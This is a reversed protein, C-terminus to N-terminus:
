KPMPPLIMACSPNISAEASSMGDASVVLAGVPVEGCRGAEHALAIAARMFLIDQDPSSLSM